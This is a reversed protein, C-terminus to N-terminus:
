GATSLPQNGGTREAATLNVVRIHPHLAAWRAAIEGTNDTSADNILDSSGIPPYDLESM